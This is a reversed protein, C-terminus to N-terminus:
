QSVELGYLLVTPGPKLVNVADIKWLQGGDDIRDFQTLDAAVTGSVLFGSSGRRILGELSDRFEGVPNQSVLNTADGSVWLASIGSVKHGSPPSADNWAAPGKWPEAANAPTRPTKLITVPRGFEPLLEDIVATIESYDFAM